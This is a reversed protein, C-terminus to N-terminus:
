LIYQFEPSEQSVLEVTKSILLVVQSVLEESFSSRGLGKYTM